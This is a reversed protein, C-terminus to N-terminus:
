QCARLGWEPVLGTEGGQAQFGCDIGVGPVWVLSDGSFLLPLAPREWPPVAAEQLLNKLSRRPRKCDPRFREGGRRVRITVPALMLNRLSIGGGRTRRFVLTGGLEDIRLRDEGRWPKSFGAQPLTMPRQAYLANQYRRIEFEGLKVRLMSDGRAGVLQRLIEELRKSSPMPVRQDALYFRLLNRARAPNLKRLADLRLMGDAIASRADIQALEDLLGAAEALNESARVITARYAPFRKEVLPLVQHRLFNRDFATNANSEDEVWQLGRRRAYAEIESRSIQLFPRLFQLATAAKGKQGRDETKPGRIVPMASLGKVGAGRLLQLLLTEAQDDQHHALVVFEGLQRAFVRYRAERAAAELSQGPQRSVSVRVTKFSIGRGACLTRCFKSWEGARPSLQHNVHVACLKFKLRASLRDLLDLLVVSDIGGSLGAVLRDGPKIWQKLIKSVPDALSSRRLKRSNAM